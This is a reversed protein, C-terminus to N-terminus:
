DSLSPDNVIGIFLVIGTQKEIIAYLFPHDLKLIPPPAPV